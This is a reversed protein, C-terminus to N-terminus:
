TESLSEQIARIRSSSSSPQRGGNFSPILSLHFRDFQEGERHVSHILEFESSEADSMALREYAEQERHNRTISPTPVAFNLGFDFVKLFTAAVICLLGYGARWDFEFIMVTEDETQAVTFDAAVPVQLDGKNFGEACEHQYGFWTYLSTMTSIFGIMAGFFKQCNVDYNPYMRLFDTTISPLYFVLSMICSSILRTSAKRCSDCRDFPLFRDWGAYELPRGCFEDFTLVADGLIPDNSMAVARLGNSFLIEGSSVGETFIRATGRTFYAGRLLTYNTSISFCAFFTLIMGILNSVLAITFIVRRKSPSEPDICGIRGFCELISNQEILDPFWKVFVPVYCIPCPPRGHVVLGFWRTPITDNFGLTYRSQGNCRDYLWQRHKTAPRQRRRVRETPTETTTEAFAVTRSTDDPQKTHTQEEM